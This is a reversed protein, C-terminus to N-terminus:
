HATCYELRCPRFLHSPFSHRVDIFSHSAVSCQLGFWYGSCFFSFAVLLLFLSLSLFSPLPLPFTFSFPLSLPPSISLKLYCVNGAETHTIRFIAVELAICSDDNSWFTFPFLFCNLFLHLWSSFSVVEFCASLCLSDDISTTSAWCHPAQLLFLLASRNWKIIIFGIWIGWVCYSLQLGPLLFFVWHIFGKM